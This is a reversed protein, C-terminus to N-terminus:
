RRTTCRRAGTGSGQGRHRRGQEIMKTANDYYGKAIAAQLKEAVGAREADSCGAAGTGQPRSPGAGVSETRRTAAAGRGSGTAGATESQPAPAPQGGEGFISRFLGRIAGGIGELIREPGPAPEQQPQQAISPSAALLAAALLV